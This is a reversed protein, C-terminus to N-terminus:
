LLCIQKNYLKNEQNLREHNTPLQSYTSRCSVTPKTVCFIINTVSQHSQVHFGQIPTVHELWEHAGPCLAPGELIVAPLIQLLHGLTKGKLLISKCYRQYHATSSAHRQDGAPVLASDALDGSRHHRLSSRCTSADEAGPSM